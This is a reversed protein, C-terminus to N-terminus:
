PAKEPTGIYVLVPKTITLDFTAPSDMKYVLFHTLAAPDAGSYILSDLNMTLPVWEGDVLPHMVGGISNAGSGFVGYFIQPTHVTGGDSQISFAIRKGNAAAVYKMYVVVAYKKRIESLTLGTIDFDTLNQLLPNLTASSFSPGSAPVSMEGVYAHGTTDADNLVRTFKAGVGQRSFKNMYLDNRDLIPAAYPAGTRTVRLRGPITSRDIIDHTFWGNISNNTMVVDNANITRVVVASRVEGPGAWVGTYSGLTPEGSITCGSIELGVGTDFLIPAATMDRIVASVMTGNSASGDEGISVGVTGKRLEGTVSVRNSNVVVVVPDGGNGLHMGGIQSDHSGSAFAVNYGQPQRTNIYSQTNPSNLIELCTGAGHGDRTVGAADKYYGARSISGRLILNEVQGGGYTGDGQVWLGNKTSFNGTIDLEIPSTITKPVRVYTARCDVVDFSVPLKDSYAVGANYYRHKILYPMDAVLEANLAGYVGGWTKADVEGSSYKVAMYIQSYVSGVFKGGNVYVMSPRNAFGSAFAAVMSGSSFVCGEFVGGALVQIAGNVFASQNDGMGKVAAGAKAVFSFGKIDVTGTVGIVGKSLSLTIGTDQLELAVARLKATEDSGDALLGFFATDLTRVASGLTRVPKAGTLGHAVIGSGQTLLALDQRLSNDGVLKFNVGETAWDGTTVYPSTISTPISPKLSYPQGLYDFTQTHSVISIGAAYAGISSWGSGELFQEFTSERLAQAADFEESREAQDEAFETDRSIKDASYESEREAQAETFEQARVEQANNFRSNMGGLSIVQKGTRSSYSESDGNVVEDLTQSNDYRDRADASPVPNGTNYTTM